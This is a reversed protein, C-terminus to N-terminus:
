LCSCGVHLFHRSGREWAAAATASAVRAFWRGRWCPAGPPCSVPQQVGVPAALPVARRPVRRPHCAHRPAADSMRVVMTWAHLATTPLPAGSRRRCSAAAAVAAVAVAAARRAVAGAAVALGDGRRAPQHPGAGTKRLARLGAGPRRPVARHPVTRRTRPMAACHCAHSCGSKVAACRDGPPHPQCPLRAYACVTCVFVWM